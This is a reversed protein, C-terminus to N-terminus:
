TRAGLKDWTAWGVIGDARIGQARQFAKAADASQKGFVGDVRGAYYGGRKLLSQAQRACSSREGYEVQTYSCSVANASAATTRTSAPQGDTRSATGQTHAVGGAVMGVIAIAALAEGADSM